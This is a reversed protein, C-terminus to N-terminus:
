SRGVSPPAGHNSRTRSVTFRGENVDLQWGESRLANRFADIQDDRWGSSSLTLRGPEFRLSDLPGRDAPWASAAAGLLSELDDDGPRGAAARLLATERQMQMEPDLISRVQPHTSRLVQELAARRADLSSRQHWAWLNIGLLQVVILGVLGIRVPRWTRGMYARYLQRLARTGRARAALDFQRLNWPSNLAALSRAAPSVVTVRSGLWAEAAEAAAPTATWQVAPLNASPFLKRALSGDLRMEAVGDACSWRLGIQGTLGTESFEIEHFHGLPPSQPWSVPAVRDVLVQAAELAALHDALWAKHMVAVWTKAGGTAGAELAFHLHEPDDLVAEEMLGVLASRMRALGARPLGVHFWSLASEPPVAVVTDARPLKAAVCRGQASILVGDPTLLYDYEAQAQSADSTDTGQARFRPRPPLLLVLTSM